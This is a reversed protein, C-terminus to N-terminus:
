PQGKKVRELVKAAGRCIKRAEQRSRLRGDKDQYPCCLCPHSDDGFRRCVDPRDDYINCTKDKNLFPCYTDETMPLIFPRKESATPDYGELEKEELPIQVLKDRNREYIDKPIPCVGCCAAKCKNHSSEYINLSLAVLQLIVM